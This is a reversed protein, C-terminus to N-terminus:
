PAGPPSGPFPRDAHCSFCTERDASNLQSCAPCTWWASPAGPRKLSAAERRFRYAVIAALILAAGTALMVVLLPVAFDSNQANDTAGVVDDALVPCAAALLLPMLAAIAVSVSLVRRVRAPSARRLRGTV